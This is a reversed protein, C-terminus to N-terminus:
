RGSAVAPGASVSTTQRLDRFLRQVAGEPQRVALEVSDPTKEFALRVVELERDERQEPGLMAAVLM